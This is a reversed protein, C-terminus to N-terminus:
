KSVAPMLAPRPPQALVWAAITELVESDITLDIKAYEAVAGTEARQFM